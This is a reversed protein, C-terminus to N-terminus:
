ICKPSHDLNEDPPILFVHHEKKQKIRALGLLGVGPGPAHPVGSCHMCCIIKVDGKVQMESGAPPSMLVVDFNLYAPQEVGGEDQTGAPTLWIIVQLLDACGSCAVDALDHIKNTHM